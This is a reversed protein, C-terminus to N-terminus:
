ADSNLMLDTPKALRMSVSGFRMGVDYLFISYEPHLLMATIPDLDLAGKWATGLARDLHPARGVHFLPGLTPVIQQSSVVHLMLIFALKEGQLETQVANILSSGVKRGLGLGTEDVDNRTAARGRGGLGELRRDRGWDMINRVYKRFKLYHEPCQLLFSDVNAMYYDLENHKWSIYLRAETGSMAISFAASDIPHVMDSECQRLRRNLKEAINVCSTSGGLCQNTAVWLSGVGSPGDGKFEIVLFPYVLDSTNAAMETGMSILQAQQQPFAMQRNYGYIMDPVPTSVKLSSGTGPVTHKAMPQRDARDLSDSPAFKPFITDRFYDEVKPEGAGMWLENLETDQRVDELSPGPSDRDRQIRDVIDAIEEPFQEHLPRMYINNAALNMQRYYPNEVLSRGAPGSSGTINSLAISRSDTDARSRSGTSSPTPPVTFGDADRTYGMVPASRAHGRPIPSDDAPQLHSDSRCRTDRDSQVSELWELVLSHESNARPGPQSHDVFKNLFSAYSPNPKPHQLVPTQGLKDAPQAGEGEVESQQANSLRAKKAPSQDIEDLQRKTSRAPADRPLDAVVPSPIAVANLLQEQLCKSLRMRSRRPQAKSVGNNM